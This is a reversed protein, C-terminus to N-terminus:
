WEEMGLHDKRSEYLPDLTEKGWLRVILLAPLATTAAACATDCFREAGVSNVRMSVMQVSRIERM